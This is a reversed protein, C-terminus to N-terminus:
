LRPSRRDILITPCPPIVAAIGADTWAKGEEKRGKKGEKRREKKGERM